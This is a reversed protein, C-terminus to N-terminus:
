LLMQKLAEMQEKLQETEKDQARREAQLQHVIEQQEALKSDFEKQM